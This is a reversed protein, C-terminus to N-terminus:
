NKNNRITQLTALLARLFPGNNKGEGEKGREFFFLLKELPVLRVVLSFLYGLALPRLIAFSLSESSNKSSYFLFLVLAFSFLFSPRFLDKISLWLAKKVSPKNLASVPQMAQAKLSLKQFFSLPIHPAFIAIAVALAGKVIVFAVLLQILWGEPLFQANVQEIAEWINKGFILSYLLM